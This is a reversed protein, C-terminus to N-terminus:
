IIKLQMNFTSETIKSLEELRKKNRGILSAKNHTNGSNIIIMNEQIDLSKFRVPNVVDLVFRHADNIGSAESIIRVKKGLKDQIRRINIANQGIAKSVLHEPVAFIITGNYVFCKSTKVKSASDLINIYRMTQMDITTM